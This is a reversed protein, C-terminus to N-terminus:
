TSSNDPSQVSVTDITTPTPAPSANRKDAQIAIVAKVNDLLKTPIRISIAESQGTQLKDFLVGLSWVLGKIYEKDKKVKSSVAVALEESLKTAAYAINSRLNESHKDTSIKRSEALGVEARAQARQDMPVDNINHRKTSTTQTEGLDCVPILAEESAKRSKAM